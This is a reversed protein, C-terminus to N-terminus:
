IREEVEELSTVCMWADDDLKHEEEAHREGERIMRVLTIPLGVDHVAELERPNDDIFVMSESGSEIFERLHQPKMMDPTAIQVDDVYSLVTSATVKSHQYDRNGFTLITQRHEDRQAELFPIVDEFVLSVGAEKTKKYFKQVAKDFDKGSIGLREGHGELTFGEGFLTNGTTVIAEEDGGFDKLVKQWAEWLSSTKFLTADFDYVFHM